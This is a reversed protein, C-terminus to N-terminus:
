LYLELDSAARLEDIFTETLALREEKLLFLRITGSAEDFPLFREPRREEAHILHFGFVSEVVGSIDGPELKFLADEFAPVMQGPVVFGLDGGAPATREDESHLRALEEFDGGTRLEGLVADAQVRVAERDAPTTGEAVAFLIHRARTAAPETFQERHQEYFGRVAEEDLELRSTVETEIVKSIVLDKRAEERLVDLSTQWNTLQAEFADVSPYSLRIRDIELEVEASTVAVDRSESEQVLLHFAVLRDLVSRYVAPRLQPPLVQGAKIEQARVAREFEERGIVTGNVRAVVEPITVATSDGPNTEDATEADLPPTTQASQCGAFGVSLAVVFGFWATRNLM